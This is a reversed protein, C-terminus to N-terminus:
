GYRQLARRADTRLAAIASPPDPLADIASIVRGLLRAVPPPLPSHLRDAERLLASSAAIARDAHVRLRDPMPTGDLTDVLARVTAKIQSDRTDADDLLDLVLQAGAVPLRLPEGATIADEVATRLAERSM